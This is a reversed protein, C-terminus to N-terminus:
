RIMTVSPAFYGGNIGLSEDVHVPCSITLANAIVSGCFESGSLTVNNQPAYIMAYLRAGNSISLAKGASSPVAIIQLNTPKNQYTSFTVSTFTANGSVYVVAPGSFSITTGSGITFNNLYYSGGPAAFSQGGPVALDRTGSNYWGPTGSLISNNYTGLTPNPYVQTIPISASSGTGSYGSTSGTYGNDGYIRGATFTTPGNSGVNGNSRVPMPGSNPYDASASRYSDVNGSSQVSSAGFVAYSCTAGIQAVCTYTLNCNAIGISQGMICQIPNGRTSDRHATIQVANPYNSSTDITKNAINWKGVLVDGAQLVLPTGDVTNYGGCTIADTSAQSSNSPLDLAGARAAADSARELETKAVEVRGFDVALSCIGILATLSVM